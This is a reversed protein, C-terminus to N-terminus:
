AERAKLVLMSERVTSRIAPVSRRTSNIELGHRRVMNFVTRATVGLLKAAEVQSGHSKELASEILQRECDDLARALNFDPRQDSAALTPLTSVLELPAAVEALAERPLDRLTLLDRRDAATLAARVLNELERINGPFAMRGLASVFEPSLEPVQGHNLGSHKAAFHRCLAPVDERRSRLPPLEVKVVSLRYYLDERFRGARVRANLDQHTAAIVRVDTPHERDDGVTLVRGEQIVRLLKGQLEPDLEAIEDLFLVGGDASRILGSRDQFAGSFAGRRHGFLESEALTKSLAACNVAVFPGAARKQDRAHLIRAAVEKGTGTEGQLLVPVSGIEALRVLHRLVSRMSASVAVVDLGQLVSDMRAEESRRRRQRDVAAGAARHLDSRFGPEATDLLLEVGALLLRCREELPFRGSGACVGITRAGEALAGALLASPLATEGTSCGAPVAVIVVAVDSGMVGRKGDEALDVITAPIKSLSDRVERSSTGQGLHLVIRCDGRDTQKEHTGM